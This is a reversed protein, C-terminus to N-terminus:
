GQKSLIWEIAAHLDTSIFDPRFNSNNSTKLAQEGYGTLVLLTRCGFRRGAELDSAKDGVM